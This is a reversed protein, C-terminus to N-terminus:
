SSSRARTIFERIKVPDKRGDTEVGSSVDVGFPRVRAVAEGVNEPTLGGSLIVRHRGNVRAALDWDFVRGTGGAVEPDYSDLLFASVRYRDMSALSSADRVRIAKVVTRGLAACFEPTESGHLQVVDLGVTEVHGLIVNAGADVFLGVKTVFPPLEDAIERAREISVQRRSPAFVFGIADAGAAAAALANEVDSIGCIKVRVM